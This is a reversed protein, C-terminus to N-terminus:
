CLCEQLRENVSTLVQTACLQTTCRVSKPRIRLHEPDTMLEVVRIAKKGGEEEESKHTDCLKM